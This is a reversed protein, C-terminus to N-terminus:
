QGESTKERRKASFGKQRCPSAMTTLAGRGGGEEKGAGGGQTWHHTSQLAQPPQPSAGLTQGQPHRQGGHALLPSQTHFAAYPVPPSTTDTALMHDHVQPTVKPLRPTAQPQKRVTLHPCDKEPATGNVRSAVIRRM